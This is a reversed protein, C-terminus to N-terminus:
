IFIHLILYNKKNNLYNLAVKHPKEDILKKSLPDIYKAELQELVQYHEIFHKVFNEDDKIQGIEEITVPSYVVDIDSKM